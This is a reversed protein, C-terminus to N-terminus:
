RAGAAECDAHQDTAAQQQMQPDASAGTTPKIPVKIAANLKDYGEKYRLLFNFLVEGYFQHIKQAIDDGNGVEKALASLSELDEAIRFVYEKIRVAAPMSPDEFLLCMNMNLAGAYGIIDQWKLNRDNGAELRSIKSPDCGMTEAVQEQTLGKAVRISVLRSVVLSERIETKVAQEVSPDDALAAAMKAISNSHLNM